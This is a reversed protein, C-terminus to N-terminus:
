EEIKDVFEQVKELLTTRKLEFGEEDKLSYDIVKGRSDVWETYVFDKSGDQLTYTVETVTSEIKNLLKM